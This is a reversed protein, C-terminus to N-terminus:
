RADHLAGGRVGPTWRRGGPRAGLDGHGGTRARERRLRAAHRRALVVDRERPAARRARGLAARALRAGPAPLLATRVRRCPPCGITSSLVASPFLNRGMQIPWGSAAAIRIFSWPADVGLGIVCSRRVSM